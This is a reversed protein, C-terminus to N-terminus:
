ASPCRLQTANYTIMARIEEREISQTANDVIRNDSGGSIGKDVEVWKGSKVEM